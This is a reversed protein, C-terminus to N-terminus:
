SVLLSYKTYPKPALIGGLWVAQCGAENHYDMISDLSSHNVDGFIASKGTLKWIFVARAELNAGVAESQRAIEKM